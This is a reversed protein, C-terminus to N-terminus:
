DSMSTVSMRDDCVKCRIVSRSHEKCVASQCNGCFRTTKREKERPCFHCRGRKGTGAVDANEEVAAAATAVAPSINSIGARVASDQNEEAEWGDPNITSDRPSSSTGYGATQLFM